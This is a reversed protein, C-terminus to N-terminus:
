GGVRGGAEFVRAWFSGGGGGGGVPEYVALKVRVHTSWM